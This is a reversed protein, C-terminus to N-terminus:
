YHASRPPSAVVAANLAASSQPVQWGISDPPLGAEGTYGLAGHLVTSKRMITSAAVRGSDLRFTLAELAAGSARQPLRHVVDEDPGQM